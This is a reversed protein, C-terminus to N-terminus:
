DLWCELIRMALSCLIMAFLAVARLDLITWVTINYQLEPDVVWRLVDMVEAETPM